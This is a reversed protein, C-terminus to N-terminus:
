LEQITFYGTTAIEINWMSDISKTISEFQDDTLIKRVKDVFQKNYAILEMLFRVENKLDFIQNDKSQKEM